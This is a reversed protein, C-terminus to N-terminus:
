DTINLLPGGVTRCERLCARDCADLAPRCPEADRGCVQLRWACRGACDRWCADSGWVTSARVSTPFPSVHVKGRPFVLVPRNELTYDSAAAPGVFGAILVLLAALVKM